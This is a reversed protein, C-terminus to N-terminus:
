DNCSMNFCYYVEKKVLTGENHDSRLYFAEESALLVSTDVPVSFSPIDDLKNYDEEDNIDDIGM